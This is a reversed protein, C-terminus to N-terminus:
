SIYKFVAGCAGAGLRTKMETIDSPDVSHALEKRGNVIAEVLAELDEDKPPGDSLLSSRRLKEADEDMIMSKRHIQTQVLKRKTPEREKLPTSKPQISNSRKPEILERSSGKDKKAGKSAEKKECKKEPEKDKKDEEEKKKKEKKKEEEEEEKVNEDDGDDDDKEDFDNTSFIIPSVTGPDESNTGFPTSLYKHNKVVSDPPNLLLPSEEEFSLLESGDDRLDISCSATRQVVKKHVINQPQSKGVSDADDVKKIMIRPSSSKILVSIEEEEEEDEEGEGEGNKKKKEKKEEKEENESGLVKGGAKGIEKVEGIPVRESRILVPIEPGDETDLKLEAEM